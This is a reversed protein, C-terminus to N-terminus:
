AFISTIVITILFLIVMVVRDGKIRDATTLSRKITEERQRSISILDQLKIIM